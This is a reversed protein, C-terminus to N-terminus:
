LAQQKVLAPAHCGAREDLLHAVERLHDRGEEVERARLREFKSFTREALQYFLTRRLQAWKKLCPADLQNEFSLERLHARVLTHQALCQEIKQAVSCFRDAFLALPPADM